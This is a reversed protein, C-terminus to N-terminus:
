IYGHGLEQLMIDTWLTKLLATWVSLGVSHFAYGAQRLHNSCTLAIKLNKSEFDLLHAVTRMRPTKIESFFICNETAFTFRFIKSVVYWNIM